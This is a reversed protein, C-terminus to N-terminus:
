ATSANILTYKPGQVPELSAPGPMEAQKELFTAGTPCKAFGCVELAARLEKMETYLERLNQQLIILNQEVSQLPPRSAKDRVYDMLSAFTEANNPVYTAGRGEAARRNNRVTDAREKAASWLRTLMEHAGVGSDAAISLPLAGLVALMVACVLVGGPLARHLQLCRRLM